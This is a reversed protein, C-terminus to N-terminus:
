QRGRVAQLVEELDEFRETSSNRIQDVVAQPTDNSRANSAVEEKDAPFNMGGLYQQLESLNLDSLGGSTDM